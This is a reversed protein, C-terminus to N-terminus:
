PTIDGWYVRRWGIDVVKPEIELELSNFVEDIYQEDVRGSVDIISVGNSSFWYIDNNDVKSLRLTREGDFQTGDRWYRYSVKVAVMNYIEEIIQLNSPPTLNARILIFLTAKLPTNDSSYEWNQGIHLDIKLPEYVRCLLSDSSNGLTSKVVVRIAGKAIALIEGTQANISAISPNSSSWILAGSNFNPPKLTVTPTFHEGVLLDVIPPSLFLGETQTGPEVFRAIYHQNKTTPELPPIWEALHYIGGIPLATLRPMEGYSHLGEGFILAAWIPESEATITYYREQLDEINCHWSPNGIATGSFKLTLKYEKGREIDFNNFRDSGPYYRYIVSGELTNSRYNFEVEIYSCLHKKGIPEKEKPNSNTGITGQLNEFLYLSHQSNLPSSGLQEQTLSIGSKDIEALTPTHPALLTTSYPINRVAISTLQMEVSPCLEEFNFSFSIKARPERLAVIVEERAGIGAVVSEGVLI